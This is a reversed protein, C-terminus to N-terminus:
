FPLILSQDAELKNTKTNFIIGHRQKSLNPCKSEKNIISINIITEILKKMLFSAVGGLVLLAVVSFLATM